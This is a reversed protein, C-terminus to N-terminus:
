YEPNDLDLNPYKSRYLNSRHPSPDQKYEQSSELVLYSQPQYSKIFGMQHARELGASRSQPDTYRRAIKFYKSWEAM